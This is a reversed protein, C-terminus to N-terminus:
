QGFQRLHHDTHRYAWRHWDGVTMPGFRTHSPDLEGPRAGAIRRLGDVVRARDREFDDPRTGAARPDVGPLTAVNKPWRLPAHLALWKLLRRPPGAAPAGPPERGGLVSDNADALHCLMEGATLTGWRRSSDPRLSALRELLRALVPPDAISTV